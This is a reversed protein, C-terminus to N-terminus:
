VSVLFVTMGAMPFLIMLTFRAAALKGRVGEVPANGVLLAQPDCLQQALAEREAPAATGHADTECPEQVKRHFAKRGAGIVEMDLAWGLGALDHHGAQFRFGILPPAEYLLFGVLWPDPDRHIGLRALDDGEV